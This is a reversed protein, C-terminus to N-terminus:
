NTRLDQTQHPPGILCLPVMPRRDVAERSQNGTREVLDIGQRRSTLQLNHSSEGVVPFHFQLRAADAQRGTSKSDASHPVLRWTPRDTRRFRVPSSHLRVPVPEEPTPLAPLRSVATRAEAASHRRPAVQEPSLEVEREPIPRRVRLGSRVRRVPHPDGAVSHGGPGAVESVPAERHRRRSGPMVAVM